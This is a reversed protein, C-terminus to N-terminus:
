LITEIGPPCVHSIIYLGTGLITCLVRAWFGAAKTLHPNHKYHTGTKVGAPFPQHHISPSTQCGTSHEAPASDAMKSMKSQVKLGGQICWVVM